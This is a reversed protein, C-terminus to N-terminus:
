PTSMFSIEQFGLLALQGRLSEQANTTATQLVREALAAQRIREEAEMRVKSELERDPSSFIGTQREYVHSQRNDLRTSLIEAAPLRLSVHDGQVQVDETRLQSLDIGAVVEGQGIFLIRDGALWTPLVGSTDGRVIVRGNYRCSELRNLRQVQQLVVPGSPMVRTSIRFPNHWFQDLRGLPEWVLRASILGLCFVAALSLLTFSGAVRQGM